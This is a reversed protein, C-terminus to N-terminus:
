SLTKALILVFGEVVKQPYFPSDTSLKASATQQDTSSEPELVTNNTGAAHFRDPAAIALVAM